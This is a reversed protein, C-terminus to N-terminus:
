HVWREALLTVNGGRVFIEHAPDAPQGEAFLEYIVAGDTQVSEIIRVPIAGGSAELGVKRVAEPLGDWALDRQIEVIRATDGEVLVDFELESGDALEGEVDYYTRGDRVKKLVEETTFGAREAAIAMTVSAPLASPEIESIVVGEGPTACAVLVLTAAAILRRM